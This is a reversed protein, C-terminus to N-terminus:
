AEPAVHLRAQSAAHRSAVLVLTATACAVISVAAIWLAHEFTLWIENPAGLAVALGIAAAGVLTTVAPRQSVAALAPALALLGTIILRDGLVADVIAVSALFAAAPVWSRQSGTRASPMDARWTLVGVTAAVSGVSIAAAPDAWRWGMTATVVGALTVAAQAAGVASLHGDSRLAPSAVRIALRHKRRSLAVLVVLSAAALVSGVGSAEIAHDGALRLGGTIIAGFGVALLGVIVIRHAIRELHDDLVEHRLGHRFHHVLAASGVADVFGVSGFAVLAASGHKMGIVIASCGTVLTWLVSQVSVIAAARVAVPDPQAASRQNETHSSPAM